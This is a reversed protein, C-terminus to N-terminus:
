QVWGYIRAILLLTALVIIIALVVLTVYLFKEDNEIKGESRDHSTKMNM